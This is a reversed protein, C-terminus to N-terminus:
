HSSNLRTSKRDGLRAVAEFIRLDSADMALISWDDAAIHPAAYSGGLLFAESPGRHALADACRCILSSGHGRLVLLIPLRIAVTASIQVAISASRPSASGQDSRRRNWWAYRQGSRAAAHMSAHLRFPQQVHSFLAEQCVMASARRRARNPWRFALRNGAM